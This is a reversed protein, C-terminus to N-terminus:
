KPIRPYFALSLILAFAGAICHLFIKVVGDGMFVYPPISHIIPNITAVAMFAVVQLGIVVSVFLAWEKIFRIM